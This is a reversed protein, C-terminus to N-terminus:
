VVSKRDILEVRRLDIGDFANDACVPPVLASLRVTRLGSCNAFAFPALRTTGEFSLERLKSCGNFASAEIVRTTAPFRLRGGIGKCAFFAQSGVSDLQLPLVLSRLRYRSHMANRPIVTCNTKSLDLSTENVKVDRLQRFNQASTPLGILLALFFASLTKM